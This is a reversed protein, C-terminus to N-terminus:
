KTDNALNGKCWRASEALKAWAEPTFELEVPSTKTSVTLVWTGDARVAVFTGQVAITKSM